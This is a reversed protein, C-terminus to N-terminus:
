GQCRRQGVRAVVRRQRHRDGHDGAQEEEDLNTFGDRGREGIREPASNFGVELSGEDDRGQRRRGDRMELGIREALRHGRRAVPLVRGVRGRGRHVAKGVDDGRGDPGTDGTQEQDLEDPPRRQDDHAAPQRHGEPSGPETLSSGEGLLPGGGGQATGGVVAVERELTGAPPFRADETQTVPQAITAIAM